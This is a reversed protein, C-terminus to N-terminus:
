DGFWVGANRRMSDLTPRGVRGLSHAGHPVVGYSGVAFWITSTSDLTVWAMSVVFEVGTAARAQTQGVLIGGQTTTHTHAEM